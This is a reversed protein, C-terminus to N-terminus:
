ERVGTNIVNTLIAHVMNRNVISYLMGHRSVVFLQGEEEVDRNFHGNQSISTLWQFVPDQGAGAGKQVWVPQAILLHLGLSDRMRSLAPSTATSDLDLAPFALVAVSDQDQVGISDVYRLTTLDPHSGNIAFLIVKKGALTSMAVKAGDVTTFSLGYFGDALRFSTVLLLFVTSLIKM